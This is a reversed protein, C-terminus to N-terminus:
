SSNFASLMAAMKGSNRAFAVYRKVCSSRADGHIEGGRLQSRDYADQIPVNGLELHSCEARPHMPAVERGVGVEIEHHHGVLGQREVPEDAQPRGKRVRVQRKADIADVPGAGLRFKACSDIGAIM